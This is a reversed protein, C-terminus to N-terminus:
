CIGVNTPLIQAINLLILRVMKLLCSSLHWTGRFQMAELGPRSLETVIFSPIPRWDFRAHGWLLVIKSSSYISKKKLENAENKIVINRIKQPTFFVKSHIDIYKAVINREVDLGFNQTYAIERTKYVGNVNIRSDKWSQIPRANTWSHIKDVCYLM